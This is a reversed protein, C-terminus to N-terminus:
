QNGLVHELDFIPPNALVEQITPGENKIIWEPLYPSDFSMTKGTQEFYVALLAIIKDYFMADVDGLDLSKEGNPQGKEPVLYAFYHYNKDMAELVTREVSEHNGQWIAEIIDVLPTYLSHVRNEIEREVIANITGLEGIARVSNLAEARIQPDTEDSYFVKFFEFYINNVRRFPEDFYTGLIEQEVLCLEKVGEDNRIMANASVADMWDYFGYSGKAPELEMSTDLFELRFYPQKGRYLISRFAMWGAQASCYQMFRTYNKDLSLLISVIVGSKYRNGYSELSGVESLLDLENSEDHLDNVPILWVQIELNRDDDVSLARHHKNRM